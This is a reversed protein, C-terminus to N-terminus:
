VNVVNVLLIKCLFVHIGIEEYIKNNVNCLFHFGTYVSCKM